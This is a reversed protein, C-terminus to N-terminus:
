SCTKEGTAPDFHCASGEETSVDPNLIGNRLGDRRFTTCGKAGNEYAMLYIDKFSDYNVHSGINCTKSVANDIFKQAACLVNVHDEASIEEATQCQIGLNKYAWDSVEVTVPGDPLNMKRTGTLMYPPEIGSSVNDACLSITGTPAISLLLGNRLGFKRIDERIEDPLTKAFGSKLWGDAHFLPFSTKETALRISSEYSVNRLTSLIDDQKEIYGPSGYKYGMAEIANAIGTVGLGMRRKKRSELEQYQLPYISNDIVNDMAAVAVPIDKVFKDKNFEHKGDKEYLYKVMNFSGLLCAGNPPLAQEACPNTAYITECYRLPNMKNITDIFIVGPEAWDWTNQMLKDWVFSADMTGYTKGGFVLDYKKGSKLAQMFKDTIAVSINFNSLSNQDRKSKIFRLIDPHDVRLVGMMAGRRLGQSMITKCLSNWIEMFSVPGSAASELTSINSGSPRITSFDWGCGGGRRLTEASNGLEKIIGSMSDEIVSGVFCNKVHIGNHLVFTHTTPVTPCYVLEEKESYLSGTMRWNESYRHPSGVWRDRHKAILFDDETLYSKLLSINGSKKKRPGYNTTSALKAFGGVLIGVIPLYKYLWDMETTNGCINSAGRKDVCGDAAFWGRFFGLLYSDSIKSVDPLSKMDCWSKSKSIYYQPDGNSSPCYYKPYDKLYPEIDNHNSCVRISHAGADARSGDGYILGHVVGNKYDDSKDSPRAPFLHGVMRETKKKNASGTFIIHTKDPSVWGHDLTSRVTHRTYRGVFDLAYTTQVGHCYIPCKVWNGNGDLLTVEKGSVEEIKVVGYERTLIETDGSLCNYATVKHPSGVASQVRGGPLFRQEGILDFLDNHHATNDCLNSAIRSTFEEFTEDQLRYKTQHLNDSFLSDPGM